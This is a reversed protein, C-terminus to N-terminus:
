AITADINWKLLVEQLPKREKGELSELEGVIGRIDEQGYTLNTISKLVKILLKAMSHSYEAAIHLDKLESWFTIDIKEPM